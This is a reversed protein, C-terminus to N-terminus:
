EDEDPGIRHDKIYDDIDRQHFRVSRGFKCYAIAGSSMEQQIKRRSLKTVRMVDVITLM